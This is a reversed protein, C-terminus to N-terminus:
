SFFYQTAPPAREGGRVSSGLTFNRDGDKIMTMMTTMNDNDGNYHDDDDNDGNDGNDDNDFSDDNNCATAM